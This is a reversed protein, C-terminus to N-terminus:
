RDAGFAMYSFLLAQTPPLKPFFIAPFASAAAYGYIFFDYFEVLVGATASFALIVLSRTDARPNHRESMRDGRIRRAHRTRTPEEELHCNKPQLSGSEERATLTAVVHLLSMYCRCTAVVHLMSMYCRCTAVVHLLSMYCRCTAGVHLVARIYCRGSTAGGPSKLKSVVHLVAQCTAGGPLDGALPMFASNRSASNANWAEM